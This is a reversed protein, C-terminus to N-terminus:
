LWVKEVIFIIWLHIPYICYFTYKFKRSGREGNYYFFIPLAFIMMWQYGFSWFYEFNMLAKILILLSLLIYSIIIKLKQNYFFYFLLFLPVVFYSAETFLSITCLMLIIIVQLIRNIGKTKRLKEINFVIMLGVGLSWFINKGIPALLRFIWIPSSFLLNSEINTVTSVIFILVLSGMSMIMAFMFVRKIYKIQNSTKFFGEIMLFVFIPFVIRGGYHLIYNLDTYNFLKALITSSHEIVMFIIAIVKIQNSNM